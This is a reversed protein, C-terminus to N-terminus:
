YTSWSKSQEQISWSCTCQAIRKQAAWGECKRGPVWPNSRCTVSLPLEGM